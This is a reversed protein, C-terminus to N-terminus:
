LNENSAGKIYFNLQKLLLHLNPELHIKSYLANKRVSMIMCCLVSLLLKQNNILM